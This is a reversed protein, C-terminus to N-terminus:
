AASTALPNPGFRNTEDQSKTCAWILLVILGILPVFILLLWWGSRDVDHLRRVSVALGPLFTALGFAWYLPEYIFSLVIGVVFTFLVWYWYESRPSRGSFQVYKKFCAEVAQFLTM